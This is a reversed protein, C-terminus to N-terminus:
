WDGDRRASFAGSVSSPCPGTGELPEFSRGNYTGEIRGGVADDRTITVSGGFALCLYTTGL